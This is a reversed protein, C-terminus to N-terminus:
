SVATLLSRTVSSLLCTQRGDADFLVEFLRILYEFVSFSNLTAGVFMVLWDIEFSAFDYLFWIFSFWILILSDFRLTADVEPNFCCFYLVWGLGLFFLTGTIWM